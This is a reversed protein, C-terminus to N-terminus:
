IWFIFNTCKKRGQLLAHNVYLDFFHCFNVGQPRPAMDLFFKYRFKHLFFHLAPFIPFFHPCAGVSGSSYLSFCPNKPTNKQLNIAILYLFFVCFIWFIVSLLAANQCLALFPGFIAWFHPGFLAPKWYAFKRDIIFATVFIKFFPFVFLARVQFFAFTFGYWFAIEFLENKESAIIISPSAMKPGFKAM